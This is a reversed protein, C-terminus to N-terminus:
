GRLNIQRSLAMGLKGSLFRRLMCKKIKAPHYIIVRLKKVALVEGKVSKKLYM